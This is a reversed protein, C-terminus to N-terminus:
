WAIVKFTYGKPKYIRYGQEIFKNSIEDAYDKGYYPCYPWKHNYDKSVEKTQVNGYVEDPIAFRINKKGEANAKLIDEMICDCFCNIIDERPIGVLDRAPIIAM